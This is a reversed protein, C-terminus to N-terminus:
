NIKFTFAMIHLGEQGGVILGKSVLRNIGIFIPDDGTPNLLCHFYKLKSELLNNSIWNM